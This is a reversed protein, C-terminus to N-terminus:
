CSNEMNASGYVCVCGMCNLCYLLLAVQLEHAAGCFLVYHTSLTRWNIMLWSAHKKFNLQAAQWTPVSVCVCVCVFVCVCVGCNLQKGRPCITCASGPRWEM